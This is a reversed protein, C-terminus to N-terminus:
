IEKYLYKHFRQFSSSFHVTQQWHRFIRFSWLRTNLSLRGPMVVQGAQQAISVFSTFYNATLFFINQAPSILTALAPFFRKYLIVLRVFWRLFAGKWIYLVWHIGPEVTLLAVGRQDRQFRSVPVTHWRCNKETFSLGTTSLHRLCLIHHLFGPPPISRPLTPPSPPSPLIYFMACHRWRVALLLSLRAM